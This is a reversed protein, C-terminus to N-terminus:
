EVTMEGIGSFDGEKMSEIRKGLDIQQEGPNKFFKMVEDQQGIFAGLDVEPESGEKLFRIGLASCSLKRNHTCDSCESKPVLMTEDALRYKFGDKCGVLTAADVTSLRQLGSKMVVPVLEARIRQRLRDEVDPVAYGSAVAVKVREAVNDLDPDKVLSLPDTVAAVKAMVGGTPIEAVMLHAKRIRDKFDGEGTLISEAQTASIRGREELDGVYYELLDQDYPVSSVVELGTINCIGDSNKHSCKRDPRDLLFDPKLVGEKKLFTQLDECSDFSDLPLYVPGVLGQHACLRRFSKSRTAMELTSADYSEKLASALLSGTLGRAMMRVTNRTISDLIKREEMAKATREREGAVRRAEEDMDRGDYSALGEVFGDTFSAQHRHEIQNSVDAELDRDPNYLYVRQLAAIRGSLNRPRTQRFDSPIRGSKKFFTITKEVFGDDIDSSRLVFKQHRTSHPYGSLHDQDQDACRECPLTFPVRNAHKRFFQNAEDCTRFSSPDVYLHGLLGFHRLEGAIHSEFAPALPFAKVIDRVEALNAGAMMARRLKVVFTRYDRAAEGEITAQVAGTASSERVNEDRELNPVLYVNPDENLWLGELTTRSDLGQDDPLQETSEYDAEDVELWTFDPMRATRHEEIFDSINGLDSM